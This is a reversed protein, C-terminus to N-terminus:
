KSFYQIEGNEERIMLVGKGHQLASKLSQTIRFRDSEEAVIRDIVIEIDHIKYRDLQMKPAVELVVGDVRVKSFGLKRVQEFLERYHGKRGKVVPALLYLKKGAFKTFLQELIQDETQRIM